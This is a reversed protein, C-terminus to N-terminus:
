NKIILIELKSIARTIGVYVEYKNFERPSTVLLFVNEKELGKYKLISTYRLKNGTDSINKETLEEVDRITLWYNMGPEHGYQERLLSSEILLVSNKGKIPTDNSRILRLVNTVLYDKVEKLANFEKVVLSSSNVPTFLKQDFQGLFSMIQKGLNRIAPAQASRKVENLKFHAFHDSLLDSIEVLGRAEGYYSQDIDYLILCKGSNLGNEKQGTLENILLDIGRDFVDQGEDVVLFDYHPISDSRKLDSLVKQIQTYFEEESAKILDQRNIRPQLKLIFKTFTNVECSKLIGRKRFLHKISHMLLNNWCLYLGKKTVQGDIFAKAITTKGTGPGGEIMIRDNRELGVLIELNDVKLWEYTNANYYQEIENIIPSIVRQINELKESDLLPFTRFRSHKTRNYNYVSLFFLEISGSYKSATKATWLLKQEVISSDFDQHSHPFAVSHCILCSSGTNLIKEKLTFKYGESQYFPNQALGEADEQGYHFENGHFSINGGKVELVIMGEESLILFDIQASTKRYPNFTNSHFPLRLDHWIYWNKSSSSCDAYIKKYIDIEGYLPEGNDKKLYKHLLKIPKDPFFKVPM